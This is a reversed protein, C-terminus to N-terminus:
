EFALEFFLEDFLQAAQFVFVTRVNAVPRGQFLIKSLVEFFEIADVECIALELTEQVSNDSGINEGGGAGEPFTVAEGPIVTCGQVEGQDVNRIPAFVGELDNILRPNIGVVAVV